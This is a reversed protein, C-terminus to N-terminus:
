PVYDVGALSKLNRVDSRLRGIELLLEAISKAGEEPQYTLWEELEPTTNTRLIDYQTQGSKGKKYTAKPKAKGYSGLTPYGHSKAEYGDFGSFFGQSPYYSRKPEATYDPKLHDRKVPLTEWTVKLLADRLTVLLGYDQTEERSHQRSYGVGLNLCESIVKRYVKTDTFNGRNSPAYDLGHQSLQEALAKGMEPSACELGGQHTIVESDNPRDFAVAVKYKGLMEGHAKLVANSGIGGREEGRHFVYGGPVKAKLMQLMLWIGVGDDAGLCSGPSTAEMGILGFSPDYNLQKTKPQENVLHGDEPNDVTDVHCSFLVKSASKDPCPIAVYLCGEALVDAGRGAAQRIKLSLWNCFLEEALSGHPRPWQLIQLLTNDVTQPVTYVPSTLTTM